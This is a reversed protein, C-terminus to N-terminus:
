GGKLAERLVDAMVSPDARGGSAKMTQGVFFAFLKEQGARYNELQASNKALVEDVIKRIAARDRLAALGKSEVIDQPQTGTRLMEALVIKAGANTITGAASMEVLRVLAVANLHEVQRGPERLERQVDNILWRAVLVLDTSAVLSRAQRYIPSLTEDIALLEADEPSLKAERVLDEALERAAPDQALLKHKIETKSAKVPRVRGKSDVIGLETDSKAQSEVKMAKTSADHESAGTKEKQSKSWSDRLGVTRNFVLPGGMRHDVPDAYFYGLREFQAHTGPAYSALHSEGKAGRIVQLSHPNLREGLDADADVEDEDLLLRDYLRLEVDCAHAQAVWHITGKVKRGDSPARGLSEPDHTCRVETVKGSVPDKVVEVCRVLYGHRLRVEGGPSLRFYGKPPHEAFDDAEIFLERAFALPRTEVKSSDAPWRSADIWEVKDHPYDIVVLRLPDQVCMARPAIENLDDRVCYELTEMDVLSNAKAVGIRECFARIAAATYGRRRMGAITPLRPDDWGAVHKERVLELLKRKSMVTGTLNLRAFETQEPPNEFGVARVAWDYIDRNNEFELTCISHTVGEIADSLCHAYDYLPYICWRDGTRYHHAHRIRYLVPDRMKMNAASMDGVARLVHEGDRYKGARMARFLELNEQVTRSRYPSAVGPESLSGRRRRIEEESSSDVYAQGSEILREAFNYLQEFYDSAFYLHEGWDFGLWRIDGQISQVFELDETTPNTDDMRLHCRGGPFLQALGFNLCISKAHGIHLYGNPEPPFRTVVQGQYKNTRQDEEVKAVIFNSPTV